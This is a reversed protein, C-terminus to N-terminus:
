IQSQCMYQIYKERLLHPFIIKEKDSEELQHMCTFEQPGQTWSYATIIGASTSSKTWPFLKTWSACKKWFLVSLKWNPWREKISYRNVTNDTIPQLDRAHGKVLLRWNCRMNEENVSLSWSTLDAGHNIWTKTTPTKEMAERLCLTVSKTLSRQVCSSVQVASMSAKSCRTSHHCCLSMQRWCHTVVM